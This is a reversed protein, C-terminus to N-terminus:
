CEPNKEAQFLLYSGLSCQVPRLLVLNPCAGEEPATTELAM